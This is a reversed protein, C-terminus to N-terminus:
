DNNKDELLLLQEVIEPHELLKAGVKNHINTVLAEADIKAESVMRDANKKVMDTYFPIGDRMERDMSEFLNLLEKKDSAKLTGKQSLIERARQKSGELKGQMGDAISKVREVSYDLQTSHPRYKITGKGTVYRLTCPVGETNPNSIFEAYQIPTFYVEVLKQTGFYWNDGLDQTVEAQQITLLMASSNTVESGFLEPFHGTVRSVKAMGYSPHEFKVDEGNGYGKAGYSIKVPEDIDYKM